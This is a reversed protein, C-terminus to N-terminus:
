SREGILEKESGEFEVQLKVCNSDSQVPHITQGHIEELVLGM